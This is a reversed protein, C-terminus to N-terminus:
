FKIWEWKVGAEDFFSQADACSVSWKDDLNERMPMVVREVGVQILGKACDRCAPLGVVYVTSGKLSVGNDAANYILNMEAHVIMKYKLPKQEYRFQEDSMGRPFGNYGQAIVTRNRVAIAGVQTSPDKSWSSVLKAMELFRIDWKNSLTFTGKMFM